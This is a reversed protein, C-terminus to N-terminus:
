GTNFFSLNTLQRTGAHVFQASLCELLIIINTSIIITNAYSYRPM